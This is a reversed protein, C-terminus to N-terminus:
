SYVYSGAASIFYIIIVDPYVQVTQLVFECM